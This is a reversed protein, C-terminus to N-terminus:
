DAPEFEVTMIATINNEYGLRPLIYVDCETSKGCVEVMDKFDTGKSTYLFDVFSYSNILFCVLDYVFVLEAGEETIEYTTVVETQEETVTVIAIKVGVGSRIGVNVRGFDGEKIFRGDEEFDAIERHHYVM